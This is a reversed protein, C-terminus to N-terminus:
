TTDAAQGHDKGRDGSLVGRNGLKRRLANCYSLFNKPFTSSSHYSFVHVSFGSLM